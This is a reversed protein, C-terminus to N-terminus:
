FLLMVVGCLMYFLIHKIWQAGPLWSLAKFEWGKGTQVPVRALERITDAIQKIIEGNDDIKLCCNSYSLKGCVGGKEALLYDRVMRQQLAAPRMQAAQGALLGPARASENSVNELADQLRIIRNLNDVPEQAGSVVESPNWTAPSYHQIIQQHPWDDKGWMQGSGGAIATNVSRKSRSLDDSLRVGLNRDNGEPLLFFLPRIVGVYCVGTWNVPLLKYAHQGCVWYHGKLARTGNEFLGTPTWPTQFYTTNSTGLPHYPEWTPYRNPDTISCFWAGSTRKWTC